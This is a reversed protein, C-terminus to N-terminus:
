WEYEADPLLFDEHARIHKFFIDKALTDNHGHLRFYLHFNGMTYQYRGPFADEVADLFDFQTRWNHDIRDRDRCVKTLKAPDYFHIILKINSEDTSDNM